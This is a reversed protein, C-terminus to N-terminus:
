FQYPGRGWWKFSKNKLFLDSPRSVGIKAMAVAGPLLSELLQCTKPFAQLVQLRIANKKASRRQNTRAGTGTTGEQLYM